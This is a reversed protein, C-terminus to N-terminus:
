VKNMNAIPVYSTQTAEGDRALPLSAENNHTVKESISYFDLAGGERFCTFAQM